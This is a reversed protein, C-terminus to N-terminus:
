KVRELDKLLEKESIEEEKEEKKPRGRGKTPEKTKRDVLYKLATFNNKNSDDFAINVIKNMAASQLMMDAKKRLRTYIPFILKANKFAEWHEIDGEFAENVFAMETPDQYHKLFLSPFSYLGDHDEDALTFTSKYDPLYYNLEKVTSVTFYRNSLRRKDNWKMVTKEM